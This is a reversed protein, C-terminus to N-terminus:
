KSLRGAPSISVQVAGLRQLTSARARLYKFPTTKDKDKKDVNAVSIPAFYMGGDSSLKCLRMLENKKNSRIMCLDDRMLRMVLRGGQSMPDASRLRHEGLTRAIEYATFSSIVKGIWKGNEGEIIEVCYNSDGKLGKYQLGKITRSPRPKRHIQDEPLSIPIVNLNKVVRVRRVRRKAGAALLADTFEVGKDVGLSIESLLLNKIQNDAFETNELEDRSSFSDLNRRYAVKGEGRIGYQTENAMQRQYSHNPRHSVHIAQIMREVQNRYTPWPMSMGRIRGGLEGNDLKNADAFRKLNARDVVGIVAADVAHHRHDDRKKKTAEANIVSSLNWSKRIMGTITGPVAWVDNPGVLSSLYERALKAVYATDNLARDLFGREGEFREMADQQFRWLRNRKMAMVRQIIQAYEFGEPSHGFAEYPTRNGKIQNASAFSCVKNARSDDLTRSFPLIHDVQVRDSLLDAMSIQKGSYPCQRSAIDGLEEWLKFKEIDSRSVQSPAIGLHDSIEKRIRENEKQNKTQERKIEDKERQSTRLDRTVELVIQTPKGYERCIENVVLRLQGLVIHVTPNAIRGLKEEPTKGDPDGFAVSRRLIEGYYPLQDFVEGTQQTHTLASHSAYGGARVAADYSVVDRELEPLVKSIALRSLKYYGDPLSKTAIREAREQDLGYRKQLLVSLKEENSQSLILEVIEDSQSLILEVIEDQKSLPFKYWNKGFCTDHALVLSVQDGLLDKRKTGELNFKATRPKGLLKRMQSFTVHKSRLLAFVLENRENLSLPMMENDIGLYKLNNVEQMIRFKQSSPLAIPAREENPELTCRGPRVPRLPRQFAIADRIATKAEQTLIQPHYPSQSEWLTEFEELVMSRDFYLEYNAVKGKEIIPRSRTPLGKEKRDALLEGITRLNRTIMEQRVEKIRGKLTSSEDEKDVKRNSQFGRRKALHFIARGIEYPELKEDLARRRLQIPDWAEIQRRTEKEHPMLGADVLSDMVRRMRKIRRDRTRRMQRALRRDVALSSGSKADRGDSFIRVGGRIIAVPEDSTNLRFFVWGISKTGLDLALRTKM